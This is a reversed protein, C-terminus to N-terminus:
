HDLQHLGDPVSISISPEFDSLFTIYDTTVIEFHEM